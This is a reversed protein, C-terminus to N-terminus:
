RFSHTRSFYLNVISYSFMVVSFGLISLLAVRPGEWGRRDMWLLFGYVVLTALAWVVKPDALTTWVREAWVVGFILSLTLVALGVSHSVANM